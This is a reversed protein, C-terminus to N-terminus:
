LSKKAKELADVLKGWQREKLVNATKEDWRGMPQTNSTERPIEVDAAADFIAACEPSESLNKFFSGVMEYAAEEERIEGTEKLEVLKSCLEVYLKRQEDGSAEKLKNRLQKIEKEM